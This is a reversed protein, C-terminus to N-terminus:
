RPSTFWFSLAFHKHAVLRWLRDILLRCLFLELGVRRSLLLLLGGGCFLDRTLPLFPGDGNGGPRGAHTQGARHHGSRWPPDPQSLYGRGNDGNMQKEEGAAKSRDFNARNFRV